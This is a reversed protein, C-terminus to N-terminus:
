PTPKGPTYLMSSFAEAVQHSADHDQVIYRWVCDSTWTGHSKINQLSVNANFALTAGSRRFTHLSIQSQSLNLRALIAQLHRRVKTDTLPVWRNRDDKVQFLPDNPGGPTLLLLKKLVQVPCIPAAGLQPIKIIKVSDRTQMTKSWKVLLHAGPPAFFIDGRTLQELPSFAPISHPVLNSIRLFSFFAVLYTAKYIQGMWTTDCLFTIKQLLPIDIIKKIKVAFQRQMALSKQYYTIRQDLFPLISVGYMTLSSKVASIYNSVGSPSTGNELLFELFSLIFVTSLQHLQVNVFCCYAMFIKFKRKYSAQTAPRLSQHVRSVARSALDRAPVPIGTM